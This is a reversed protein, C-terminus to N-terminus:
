LFGGLQYERCLMDAHMGTGAAGYSEAAKVQKGAEVRRVVVLMLEDLHTVLWETAGHCHTLCISCAPGLLEHEIPLRTHGVTFSM